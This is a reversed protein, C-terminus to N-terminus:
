WKGVVNLFVGQDDFTLDALNDSFRGFNYGLGLKLNDGLHKWAGAVVGFKAQEAESLWLLRAEAFADWDKVVHFDARAVALQATSWAYDDVTPDWAVEGLRLGYKGGVSLREGIDYVFDTSVIHSRQRPGGLEGQANVQQEGPLDHLYTYRFLSNLPGHEFPRYAFGVSAEIYDGDLVTDEGSRSIVADAKALFRWDPSVQYGLHAKALYTNRDRGSGSLSDEFRAELKMGAERGEDRWGLAGSLALRDFDGSTADRVEGAELGASAKFSPEPTWTVGYGHTMSQQAGLFDYNEEAFVSVTDSLRHRAGFVLAGYDRGFPDYGALDGVTSDPTLKWGIHYRDSATPQYGLSALLGLGSSGVSVEGSATLKDTLDTEIGVGVRDNRPRTGDRNVTMQGFAWLELSDNVRHALRAGVDQRSGNGDAGTNGTVQSHLVGVTLTDAASVPLSWDLAGEEKIYGDDRDVHEIRATLRQTGEEGIVLKGGWLREGETTTRGPAAFGAERTEYFAGFRGAVGTREGLDVAITGRLADATGAPAGTSLPSFLFGGDTSIQADYGGGQSRAWEVTAFSNETARLTVDAGFLSRDAGGTSDSFGTAGVRVHDGLWAEARGGAAYGDVDGAVPTYEYSVVLWNRDGSLSDTQVAGGDGTSSALPENLLVLGQFYDIEYDEGNRLQRTSVVNGTVADRLEIRVQESGVSIDQRKLFYASGGSGLFEDRGALTGPQAAFASVRARAEGFRTAAPSRLEVNAGYLGREFKALETGDIRIKFNGWLAHSKGDQLRVYFRGSTPADEVTTSDDGYVAYYDDPDLRRLLQRPDKKDLNSLLSGLEGETTDLAATLLYRGQIKGKLYFALRGRAYFPQYEGPAAPALWASGPGFRKGLTLDAIGVQFFENQPITVARSFRLGERGDPRRVEIDIEHEGVPLLIAHAFRGDPDVAAPEGGVFVSYGAPIGSGHATVKGGYVPINAILTRDVGEGPVPSDNAAAFNGAESTLSLPLPVTEDFRGARDHVRLAYAYEGAQPPAIWSATRDGGLPLVAVPAAVAAADRKDALRYIRIQANTVYAAYNWSARFGVTDGPAFTRREPVTSVNLSRAADLGDFKVKIDAADLPDGTAQAAVTEEGFRITLGAQGAAPAAGGEEAAVLADVQDNCPQVCDARADRIGIAALFVALVATGRMASLRGFVEPVGRRNTVM